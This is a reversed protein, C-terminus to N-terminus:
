IAAPEAINMPQHFGHVFSVNQMCQSHVFDLKDSLQVLSLRQSCLNGWIEVDDDRRFLTCVHLYTYLVHVHANHM